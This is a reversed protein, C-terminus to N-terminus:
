RRKRAKLHALLNRFQNGNTTLSLTGAEMQRGAVALLCAQWGLKGIEAMHGPQAAVAMGGRQREQRTFSHRPM